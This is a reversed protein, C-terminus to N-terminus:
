KGTVLVEQINNVSVFPKVMVTMSLGVTKKVVRVVKGVKIGEPFSKGLGSTVLVDGEVIDEEKPVYELECMGMGKGALIGIVKNRDVRVSIRSESDTLLQVQSTEPLMGAIRGLVGASAVVGDGKIIGSAAGKDLVYYQIFGDTNADIVSAFCKTFKKFENGTKMQLAKKLRDNESMLSQNQLDLFINKESLAKIGTRASTVYKVANFTDKVYFINKSIGEQLKTFGESFPKINLRAIMVLLLVPVAIGAATYLARKPIRKKM